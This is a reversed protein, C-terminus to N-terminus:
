SNNLQLNLILFYVFKEVLNSITISAVETARKYSLIPHVQRIFDALDAVKCLNDSLEDFIELMKRCRSQSVIEEQLREAHTICRKSLIQFGDPTILEPM